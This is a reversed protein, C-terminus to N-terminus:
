KQPYYDDHKLMYVDTLILFFGAIAIIEGYLEWLFTLAVGIVLLGVGVCFFPYDKPIDEVPRRFVRFLLQVLM